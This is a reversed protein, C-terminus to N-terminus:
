KAKHITSHGRTEEWGPFGAHGYLAVKYLPLGRLHQAWATDGHALDTALSLDRDLQQARTLEREGHENYGHAVHDTM